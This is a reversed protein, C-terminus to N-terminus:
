ISVAGEARLRELTLALRARLDAGAPVAIMGRAPTGVLEGEGRLVRLGAYACCLADVVAADGIAAWDDDGGAGPRWGDMDIVARLLEWAALVGEPRARGAGKPRYVPARVSIWERRYAALGRGTAGAPTGREWAVQRLVQDPLAEALLRGPAVLAPALDVGRTGGTVQRLRRASVPFATVDCWALVAEADRRGGEDPVALPADVILARGGAAGALAAVEADGRAQALGTLRGSGDLTVLVSPRPSDILELHQVLHLGCATSVASRM